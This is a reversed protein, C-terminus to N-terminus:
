VTLTQTTEGTQGDSATVTLVADYSGAKNPTTWAATEGSAQVTGNFLWDWATITTTDDGPASASADFTVNQNRGPVPPDYTFSAVPPPAEEVPPDVPEEPGGAGQAAQLQAQQYPSHVDPPVVDTPEDRAEAEDAATAQDEAEGAAAAQNQKESM